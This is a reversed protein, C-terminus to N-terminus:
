SAGGIKTYPKTRMHEIAAEYTDGTGLHSDRGDPTIEWTSFRAEGCPRIYLDVSVGDRKCLARLGDAIQAPLLDSPAFRVSVSVAHGFYADAAESAHNV